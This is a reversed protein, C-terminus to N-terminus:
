RAGRRATLVFIGAMVVLTGAIQTASVPEGLLLAGLAITAAPGVMGAQSAAAPGVRAIGMMVLFVPLVTCFFGNLASLWYVPAPQSWLAGADLALAQLICALSAVISAWATLRLAGLRAVLEGSGVLYVAYSLASAFVLASGLPVDRGSFSLDHWFVFVVGAYSIALAVWERRGIRRRLVLASILLVLTPNLYLIIRELGASIYQLGLFDLFSALYYGALGLGLVRWRDGPKWPSAGKREVHWAVAVFFPLAFVMRLAILTVADVGHRYALKVIIAKASFLVAGLSALAVGAALPRAPQAGGPSAPATM